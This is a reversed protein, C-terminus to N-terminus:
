NHVFRDDVIKEKVVVNRCSLKQHNSINSIFLVTEKIQEIKNKKLKFM